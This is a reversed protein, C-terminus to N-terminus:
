SKSWEAFDLLLLKMNDPPPPSTAGLAKTVWSGVAQLQLVKWGDLAISDNAEGGLADYIIPM